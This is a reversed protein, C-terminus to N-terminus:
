LMGNHLISLASESDHLLQHLVFTCFSLQNETRYLYLYTNSLLIHYLPLASINTASIYSQSVSTGTSFQVHGLVYITCIRIYKSDYLKLLHLSYLDSLNQRIIHWVLLHTSYFFYAPVVIYYYCYYVLIYISLYIYEELILSAISGKLYTQHTRKDAKLENLDNTIFCILYIYICIYLGCIM